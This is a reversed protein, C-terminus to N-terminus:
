RRHAEKRETRPRRRARRPGEGPTQRGPGCTNRRAPLTVSNTADRSLFPPLAPRTPYIPALRSPFLLPDPYPTSHPLVAIDAKREAVSALGRAYTRQRGALYREDVTAKDSLQRAGPRAEPRGAQRAGRLALVRKHRSLKRAVYRYFARDRPSHTLTPADEPDLAPLVSSLATPRRPQAPRRKGQKNYLVYQSVLMKLPSQRRRGTASSRSLNALVQRYDSNLTM